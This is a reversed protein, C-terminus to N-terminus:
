VTGAQQLYHALESLSLPTAAPVAAMAAEPMARAYADEPRQVLCTGGAAAIMKLGAAGDSNAGSLVVGILGPGFTEAATEFLVDISPRSFMVEEESSLSLRRDPEVLLHYDPAAIYIHGARIPEKDQVEHVPLVSQAQLLEPLLSNKDPPLHVVIMIPLRYGKPLAPLLTSIAELAGASAGIVVAEHM